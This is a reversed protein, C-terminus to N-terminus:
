RFSEYLYLLKLLFCIYHLKIISRIFYIYFFIYIYVKYVPGFGGEGLKNTLSFNNTSIALSTLDFLQLEPVESAKNAVDKFMNTDSSDRHTTKELDALVEQLRKSKVSYYEHLNFFLILLCIKTFFLLM